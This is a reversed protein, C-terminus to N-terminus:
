DGDDLRSDSDPNVLSEELTARAGEGLGDLAKVSAERIEWDPHSLGSRLAEVASDTNIEELAGIAGTLVLPNRSTLARRLVPVADPGIQGLANTVFLTVQEQDLMEELLPVAAAAKPGLLGLGSIAEIRAETDGSEVRRMLEPVAHDDEYAVLARTAQQRAQEDPSDLLVRHKELEAREEISRSDTLYRAEFSRVESMFVAPDISGSVLGLEGAVIGLLSRVGFEDNM